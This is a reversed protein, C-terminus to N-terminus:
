LLARVLDHYRRVMDRFDFHETVRRRGTRGFDRRSQSDLVLRRMAVLLEEQSGPTILLGSAGEEIVDPIGGVRSGIAALGCAQAELLALPLGETESALVFLDAAQLYEAVNTVAGTFTVCSDLGSHHVFTRLESECSLPMGVGSGILLLHVSSIEAHLEEFARILVLLGKESTLRGAYSLVVGNEPLGFRLRLERRSEEDVPVFRRTDVSNHLLVIEDDSLGTNRFEQAVETSIAIFIDAGRLVRNRMDFYARVMRERFSRRGRSTLAYNGSLEGRSDTRLVCRKGLLKAALVAPAGLIRLNSVLILDYRARNVILPPLVSFMCLYRGLMGFRDGPMIRRVPIGSVTDRAPYSPVNRRTIVMVSYGSEHLGEALSLAHVAGGDLNPYFSEAVICVGPLTESSTSAAADGSNRDKSGDSM